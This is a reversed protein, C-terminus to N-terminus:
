SALSLYRAGLTAALTRHTPSTGVVLSRSPDISQARAFALLLGPLPPRCWCAPPGGRHPCAAAEVPGSVRDALRAALASLADPAGDPLWDFLLHPVDVDTRGLAHELAAAAVFV